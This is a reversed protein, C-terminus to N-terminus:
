SLTRATDSLPVDARNAPLTGLVRDGLNSTVGLWHLENRYHHLRHNRVLRRYYRTTPRYRSHELLHTFEYHTLALYAGGIATLLPGLVGVGPALAGLAFTAPVVWLASAVAIAGSYIVADHTRLLLWEIDPPDLHHRRHGRGTRLTRTTWADDDAHLLRLHLLWEVPGVALVTLGVVLADVWGWGGVALRASLAVASAALLVRPSGESLFARMLDAKTRLEDARRM